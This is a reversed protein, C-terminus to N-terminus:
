RVAFRVDRRAFDRGALAEFTLLHTGPNLRALPISFDLDTARATTFRDTGFTHREEFVVANRGDVIRIAIEVPRLPTRGGQYLRLFAHAQQTVFFARESTPTRPVVTALAHKPAAFRGPSASVVVGSFSIPLSAFDPVEVDAFVTGTTATAQSHAGLRLSYRGPRLAIRSLVEITTEGTSGPRFAVMATQRSSGRSDGEPSYARTELEITEHVSTRADAAIPVRPRLALAITVTADRQGPQAFPALTVEMPLDPTPLINSLAKAVESPAGSKAAREAAKKADEAYYGSRSRVDVGPRNVRVDIRRYTGDQRPNLPRYGLLYYSNNERYIEEIGPEFDNTNIIARGGTNAALTLMYDVEPLGLKCPDMSMSAPDVRLGCADISYVSVGALKARDLAARFRHILARMGEAEAMRVDSAGGSASPALTQAAGGPVPVGTGVYILAKRRDAAAVLFDAAQEITKVSAIRYYSFDAGDTPFGSTFTEIAQVLKGRDNTFDQTHRNDRTFVVAMRDTPPLREVVGRTIKKVNQIVSADLHAVGDDIVMVWLRSDQVDNTTVDPTVEKMWATSTEVVDPVDIAEFAVIPQAVGDELVTFDTDRLGRVPRRDNDLVSIDLQVLDTGARFVPPRQQEPAPRPQPITRAQSLLGAAAVCVVWGSGVLFTRM